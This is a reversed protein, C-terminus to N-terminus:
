RGGAAEAPATEERAVLKRRLKHARRAPLQAVSPVRELVHAAAEEPSDTVFVFGTDEASITGERMMTVTVLDILDQWYSRGMLVVPFREIKGTQILTSVEFVEDMTGYGGPLVVFAQSYKVLMLKRVFFYRFELWLDLWPNHHQEHPLEINCGVSFGGAEKCGRNAAEMVGPGGGTMIAYGERALRAATERAMRYYPHDEEFRASGFVTVCPGAFHLRRFGYILERFIRCARRLEALRTLPGRLFEREEPQEPRKGWRLREEPGMEHRPETM